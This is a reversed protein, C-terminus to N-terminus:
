DVSVVKLADWEDYYYYCLRVGNVRALLAKAAQVAGRPVYLYCTARTAAYERWQWAEQDTVSDATEVEGIHTVLDSAAEVFVIDPYVYQTVGRPDTYAVYFNKQGNPNTYVRGNARTWRGQAIKSLVADHQAQRQVTRNAM